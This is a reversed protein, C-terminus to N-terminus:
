ESLAPYYNRFNESLKVLKMLTRELHNGKEYNWNINGDGLPDSLDALRGRDNKDFLAEVNYFIRGDETLLFRPKVKYFGESLSTENIGVGDDDERKIIKPRYSEGIKIVPKYNLKKTVIKGPIVQKLKGDFCEMILELNYDGLLIRTVGKPISYIEGKFLCFDDSWWPHNIPGEEIIVKVPNEKISARLNRLYAKPRKETLKKLDKLNM